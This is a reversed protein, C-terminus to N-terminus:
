LPTVYQHMYIFCTVGCSGSWTTGARNVVTVNFTNGSVGTIIAYYDPSTSNAAVVVQLDAISVNMTVTSTYYYASGNGTINFSFPYMMPVAPAGGNSITGGYACDGNVATIDIPVYRIYDIGVWDTDSLSPDSVIVFRYQNEEFLFCLGAWNLGYPSIDDHYPIEVDYIHTENGSPDKKWYQLILGNGGVGVLSSYWKVYFQHLGLLIDPTLYGTDMLVQNPGTVVAITNDKAGNQPTSIANNTKYHVGDFINLPNTGIGTTIPDDVM